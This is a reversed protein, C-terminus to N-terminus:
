LVEPDSAADQCWSTSLHKTSIQSNILQTVCTLVQGCHALRLRQLCKEDPLRAM